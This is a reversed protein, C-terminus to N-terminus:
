AGKIYKKPLILDKSLLVNFSSGARITLTPQVNMEKALLQAGTQSLQQGVAGFATQQPSPGKDGNNQPQSLQGAAGVVSYLLASGFIKLYHSNVKDHLGAAGLNDVGPMNELNISSGNPFILRQWGILVRSQGYSIQSDFRGLLKAGQPILLYNGSPSDYVDRSVQASIFGPLDSNIATNLVAPIISGASVTYPSVKPEFSLLKDKQHYKDLSLFKAKQGQMNQEKYNNADSPMTINPNSLQNDAAYNKEHSILDQEHHANNYISINSAYSKDPEGDADKKINEIFKIETKPTVAVPRVVEKRAAEHVISNDNENINKAINLPEDPNINKSNSSYKNMMLLFSIVVFVLLGAGIMIVRKSIGTIEPIQYLNIKKM